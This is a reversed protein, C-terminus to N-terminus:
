NAQAYQVSRPQSTCEEFILEFLLENPIEAGNITVTIRNDQLYMHGQNNKWRTIEDVSPHENQTNVNFSIWFSYDNISANIAEAIMDDDCDIFLVDEVYEIIARRLEDSLNERTSYFRKSANEFSTIYRGEGTDYHDEYVMVESTVEITYNDLILQDLYEFANM